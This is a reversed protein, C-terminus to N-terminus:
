GTMFALSGCRLVDEEESLVDDLTTYEKMKAEFDSLSPMEAMFSTMHKTHDVVWLHDYQKFHELSQTVLVKASSITSTMMSVLKAIEKHEAISKYFTKLGSPTMLGSAASLVGSQAALVGSSAGLVGSQAGLVGSQANLLGSHAGLVSLQAGPVGVAGPVRDMQGWQVVEKHVALVNKVTTNLSAQIEDLGPKLAIHPVALILKVKLAPRHDLKKRDETGDGYQIASPSTVRRKITELTRRTCRLLATMIQKNYHQQLTQAELYLDKRKQQERQKAMDGPRMDEDVTLLQVVSMNKPTDKGTSELTQELNIVEQLDKEGEPLLLTMLSYIAIEVKECCTNLKPGSQDCVKQFNFLSILKLLFSSSCPMCLPDDSKFCLPSCPM